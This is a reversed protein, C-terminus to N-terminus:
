KKRKKSATGGAGSGPGGEALKDQKWTSLQVNLCTGARMEEVLALARKLNEAKEAAALEELKM